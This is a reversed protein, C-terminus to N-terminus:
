DCNHSGPIYRFVVASILAILKNRNLENGQPDVAASRDVDTDFIIGFDAKNELVASRIAAM